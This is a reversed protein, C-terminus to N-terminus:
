LSRKKFLSGLREGFRAWGQGRDAESRFPIRGAQFAPPVAVPVAPAGGNSSAKTVTPTYYRGSVLRIPRRSLPTARTFKPVGRGISGAAVERNAFGQRWCSPRKGYAFRQVPVRCWANEVIAAEQNQRPQPNSPEGALEEGQLPCWIRSSTTRKWIAHVSQHSMGAAAAMM